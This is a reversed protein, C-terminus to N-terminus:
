KCLGTLRDNKGDVCQTVKIFIYGKDKKICERIAKNRKIVDESTMGSYRVSLDLNGHNFKKVGCDQFDKWRQEPDTYGITDPKQYHQIYPPDLEVYPDYGPVVYFMSCATLVSLLAGVGTLSLVTKLINM